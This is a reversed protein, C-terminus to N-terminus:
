HMEHTLELDSRLGPTYTRDFRAPAIDATDRIGAALVAERLFPAAVLMAAEGPLLGHAEGPQVLGAHELLLETGRLVRGPYNQDTWPDTLGTRAELAQRADRYRDACAAVVKRVQDPNVCLPLLPSAEVAKRWAAALEDGDCVPVQGVLKLVGPNRVVPVQPEGQAQRSRRAMDDTIEAVVDDLTRAPNRTDLAKALAQTFTGGTEDYQCVQGTGCGMVLVFQGGGALFPQQGGPEVTPGAGSLGAGLAEPGPLAPVQAPDNRCADVFFVVLVARCSALIEGDPVVPM